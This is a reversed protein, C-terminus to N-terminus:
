GQQYFTIQIRKLKNEQVQDKNALFFFKLRHRSNLFFFKLGM